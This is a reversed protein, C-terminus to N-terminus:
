ALLLEYNDAREDRGNEDPGLSAMNIRRSRQVLVGGMDFHHRFHLQEFALDALDDVRTRAGAARFRLQVSVWTGPLVTADDMDYVAVAVADDPLKPLRKLSVAPGTFGPPYVDPYYSAVGTDDLFQALSEIITSIKM